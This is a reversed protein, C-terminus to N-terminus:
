TRGPFMGVAARLMKANREYADAIRVMDDLVHAVSGCFSGDSRFQGELRKPLSALSENPERMDATVMGVVAELGEAIHEM